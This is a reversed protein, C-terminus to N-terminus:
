KKLELFGEKSIRYNVYYNKFKRGREDKSNIGDYIIMNKLIYSDTNVISHNIIFEDFYSTKIVSKLYGNKIILLYIKNGFFPNNIDHLIKVGMMGNPFSFQSIFYLSENSKIDKLHEEYTDQYTGDYRDFGNIYDLNFLFSELSDVKQLNTLDKKIYYDINFTIKKSEEKNVKEVENIPLKILTDIYNKHHVKIFYLDEVDKKKYKTSNCSVFVFIILSQIVKQIM